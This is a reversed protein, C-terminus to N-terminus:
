PPAQTPPPRRRRPPLPFQVVTFSGRGAGSCAAVVGGPDAKITDWHNTTLVVLAIRRGALRQQLRINSDATVIIEFGAQEALDLLQGNSVGAWGMEPVTKVNFTTLIRRLGVPVSEDLLVLRPM